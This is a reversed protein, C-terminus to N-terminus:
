SMKELMTPNTGAPHFSGKPLLCVVTPENTRSFIAVPIATEQTEDVKRMMCLRCSAPFGEVLLDPRLFYRMWAELIEM